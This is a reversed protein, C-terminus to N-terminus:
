SSAYMKLEVLLLAIYSRHNNEHYFSLEVYWDSKLLPKFNRSLEIRKEFERFVYSTSFIIYKIYVYYM